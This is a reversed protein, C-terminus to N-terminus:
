RVALELAAINEAIRSDEENVLEYQVAQDQKLPKPGQKRQARKQKLVRLRLMRKPKAKANARANEREMKQKGAM